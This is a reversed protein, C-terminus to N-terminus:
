QAPAIICSIGIGVIGAVPAVDGSWNAATTWVYTSAGGDWTRTASYGNVGWVMGVLVLLVKMWGSRNGGLFKTFNKM